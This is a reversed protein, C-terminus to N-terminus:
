EERRLAAAAQELAARIRERQALLRARLLPARSLRLYVMADEWAEARRPWFRGAFIGLPPAGVLVALAGIWGLQWWALGALLALWLPFFVIASLLLVTAQIDPSSERVRGLLRVAQFPPAWLAVGLTALPLGLLLAVVNRAVFRAVQGAGPHVSLDRGDIGLRDLRAVWSALMARLANARGPDEQRLRWLGRAFAQLREVDHADNPPWIRNAERLLPMDTWAELDVTVSRLGAAIDETLAAVADREREEYRARLYAVDIPEGVWTAAASRYAGPRRYTLGVPVVRVGLAWGSSEEAGLAMRAAGTKLRQLAPESHSRGEPFMCIVDGARLAEFVARFTEENRATDAGDQPRFVPLVEMRRFLAGLVPMDLLPAKGLFRVVRHTRCAVLVPDVLGNPHNGVLILPGEDPV